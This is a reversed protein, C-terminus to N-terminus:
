DPGLPLRPRSAVRSRSCVTSPYLPLLYLSDTGTPFVGIEQKISAAQSAAAEGTPSSSAAGSSSSSSSSDKSKRSGVVGGVVAAVVIVIVVAPVGIYLWKKRPSPKPRNSTLGSYENSNVSAYNGSMAFPRPRPLAFLPAVPLFFRPPCCRLDRDCIYPDKSTVSAAHGCSPPWPPHCPM